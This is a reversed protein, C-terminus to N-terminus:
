PVRPFDPRWTLTVGHRRCLRLWREDRPRREVVLVPAAKKGNAAIQDVYDLIQGLGLRIQQDERAGTLSKVEAVFVRKGRTWGADFLPSGVEPRRTEIASGGLHEILARVTAEHEATGADIADWNRSLLDQDAHKPSRRPALPGGLVGDGVEAPVRAGAANSRIRRCRAPQRKLLAAFGVADVIHVHYGARRAEHASLLKHSYGHEPDTVVKGALDGHVLLSVAGSWAKGWSAAGRKLALKGCVAQPQWGDPMDVRGTFAVAHGSLTRVWGDCVPWTGWAGTQANTMAVHHRLIPAGGVAVSEVQQRCCCSAAVTRVVYSFVAASVAVTADPLQARPTADRAHRSARVASTHLHKANELHM